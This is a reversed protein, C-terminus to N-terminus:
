PITKPELGLFQRCAANLHRRFDDDFSVSGERDAFTFFVALPGLPQNDRWPISLWGEAPDVTGNLIQKAIMSAIPIMEELWNRFEAEVDGQVTPIVGLQRCADDFSTGVDASTPKTLGALYRLAPNDMGEQLADCAVDPVREPPLKGIRWLAYYFALDGKM